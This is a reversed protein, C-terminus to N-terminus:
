VAVIRVEGETERGWSDLVVVRVGVGGKMGGCVWCGVAGRAVM